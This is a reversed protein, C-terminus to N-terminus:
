MLPAIVSWAISIYRSRKSRAPHDPGDDSKRKNANDLAGQPQNPDRGYGQPDAGYSDM